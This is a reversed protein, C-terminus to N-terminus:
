VDNGDWWRCLGCATVFRSPGEEAEARGQAGDALGAMPDLVAVERGVSREILEVLGPELAGGGALSIASVDKRHRGRYFTVTERIHEGLEDAYAALVGAPEGSPVGPGVVRSILGGGRSSIYMAARRSGLDVLGAATEPATGEPLSAFLANLGALPELDVVEPELGCKKLVSLTQDRRPGPVAALLIRTQKTDGDEVSGLIQAALVPSTMGELDLHKRAEFPLARNLEGENLPPLLIERLSADAGSVGVAIRGMRTRNLGLKGLLGKLADAALSLRDEKEDEGIEWSAIGVHTFKEIRRGGEGRVVKVSTTGLDIGTRATQSRFV